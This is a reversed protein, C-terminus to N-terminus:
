RLEEAWNRIEIIEKLRGLFSASYAGGMARHDFSQALVGILRIALTDGSEGTVVSPRKQIGDTSLIAVQPQNIIPATILTGFSGSNSITYTGGALDDPTLAGKRARSSVDNIACALDPLRKGGADRIVPVVLEKLDLDVAIGLHIRDHVVLRDGDVSANVNPFDAIALCTARAIFPLYTLQFGEREAWGDCNADRAQAVANFDAEVAQLVHPSTAVSRVMHEATLQNIRSMPIVTGDVPLEAAAGSDTNKKELSVLVDRRTIRGGRGTGTIQSADLGHEALMQSVVPSLVASMNADGAPPPSPAATPKAQAEPATEEAVQEDDGDGSIVAIRTGVSVTDGEEALVAMLVGDVPAPIETDVKDTSVEFLTENASVTEGVKKCWVTITGEEVTEGLQPMVVDM